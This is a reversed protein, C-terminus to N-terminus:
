CPGLLGRATSTELISFFYNHILWVFQWLQITLSLCRKCINAQKYYFKFIIAKTNMNKTTVNLLTSLNLSWYPTFSFNEVVALFCFLKDCFQATIRRLHKLQFLDSYLVFSCILYLMIRFRGRSRSVVFIVVYIYFCVFLCIFLYFLLCLTCTKIAIPVSIAIISHPQTHCSSIIHLDLISCTNYM